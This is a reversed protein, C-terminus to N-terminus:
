MASLRYKKLLNEMSLQVQSNAAYFGADSLKMFVIAIFKDIRLLHAWLTIMTLRRYLRRSSLSPLAISVFYYNTDNLQRTHAVTACLLLRIKTLIRLLIYACILLRLYKKATEISKSLISITFNQDSVLQRTHLKSHSFDSHVKRRRRKRTM